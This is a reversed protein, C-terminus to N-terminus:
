AVPVQLVQEFLHLRDEDLAVLYSRASVFVRKSKKKPSEKKLHNDKLMRINTETQRETSGEM